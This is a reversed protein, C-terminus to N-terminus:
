TEDARATSLVGEVDAAVTLPSAPLQFQGKPRQFPRLRFPSTPHPIHPPTHFDRLPRWIQKPTTGSLVRAESLGRKPMTKTFFCRNSRGLPSEPNTGPQPTNGAVLISLMLLCVTAERRKPAGRPPNKSWM